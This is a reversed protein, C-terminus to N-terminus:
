WRGTDSTPLNLNPPCTKSLMSFRERAGLHASIILVVFTFHLYFASHITTPLLHKQAINCSDRPYYCHSLGTGSNTPLNCSALTAHKRSIHVM